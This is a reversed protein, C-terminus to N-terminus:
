QGLIKEEMSIEYNVDLEDHHNSAKLWLFCM